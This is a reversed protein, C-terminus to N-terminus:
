ISRFYNKYRFFNRIFNRLNHRFVPKRHGTNERISIRDTYLFIRTLSFEYETTNQATYNQSPKHYWIDKSSEEIQKYKQLEKYGNYM